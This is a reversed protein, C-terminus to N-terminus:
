RRGGGDLVRKLDEALLRAALEPPVPERALVRRGPWGTIRHPQEHLMHVPGPVTRYRRWLRWWPGKRTVDGAALPLQVTWLEFDPACDETFAGSEPWVAVVAKATITGNGSDRWWSVNRIATRYGGAPKWPRM